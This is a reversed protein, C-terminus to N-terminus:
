NSRGFCDGKCERAPKTCTLCIDIRDQQDITRTKKHPVYKTVGFQSTSKIGKLPNLSKKIM